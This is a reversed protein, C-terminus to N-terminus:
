KMLKWFPAIFKAVFQRSIVEDLELTYDGVSAELGQETMKVVLQQGVDGLINGIKYSSIRLTFANPYVDISSDENIMYVNNQTSEEFSYEVPHIPCIKEADNKQISPCLHMIWFNKNLQVKMMGNLIVSFAQEVVTRMESCQM